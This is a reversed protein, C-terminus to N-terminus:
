KAAVEFHPLLSFYGAGTIMYVGDRTRNMENYFGSDYDDDDIVAAGDWAGSLIFDTEPKFTIAGEPAEAYALPDLYQKRGQRTEIEKVASCNILIEVTGANITGRSTETAQAHEILDAGDIVSPYWAGKAFNFVTLTDDYM